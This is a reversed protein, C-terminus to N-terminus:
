KMIVVKTKVKLKLEGNKDIYYVWNSYDINDRADIETYREKFYPITDKNLETPVYFNNGIGDIKDYILIPNKDIFCIGKIELNKNMPLDMFVPLALEGSVVVYKSKKDHHFIVVYIPIKGSNSVINADCIYSKIISVLAQSKIPINVRNNNITDPKTQSFCKQYMCNYCGTFLIFILVM